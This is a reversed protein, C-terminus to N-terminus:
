RPTTATHTLQIWFLILQTQKRAAMSCFYDNNIKVSVVVMELDSGNYKGSCKRNDTEANVISYDCGNGNGVINMVVVTEFVM